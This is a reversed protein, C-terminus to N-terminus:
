LQLARLFLGFTVSAMLLMTAAQEAKVRESNRQRKVTTFHKSSKPRGAATTYMYTRKRSVQPTQKSASTFVFRIFSFSARRQIAKFM